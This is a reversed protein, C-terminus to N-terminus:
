LGGWDGSRLGISNLYDRPGVADDARRNSVSDRAVTRGRHGHDVAELCTRSTSRKPVLLRTNNQPGIWIPTCPKVSARASRPTNALRSPESWAGGTSARCPGAVRRDTYGLGTLCAFAPEPGMTAHTKQHFEPDRALGSPGGNREDAAFWMTPGIRETTSWPRRVGIAREGLEISGNRSFQLPAYLSEDLSELSEGTRFIM